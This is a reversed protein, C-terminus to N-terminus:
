RFTNLGPMQGPGSSFSLPFPDEEECDLRLPPSGDEAGLSRNRMAAVFGEHYMEDGPLWSLSGESCSFSFCAFCFAVGVPSRSKRTSGNTPSPQRVGLFYRLYISAPRFGSTVSHSSTGAFGPSERDLSFSHSREFQQLLFPGERPCSHALQPTGVPFFSCSQRGSFEMDKARPRLLPGIRGFCFGLGTKPLARIFRPQKDSLYTSFSNAPEDGDSPARFSFPRMYEVGVFIPRRRESLSDALFFKAPSYLLFGRQTITFPPCEPNNKFRKM